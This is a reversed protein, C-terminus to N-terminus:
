SVGTPSGATWALHLGGKVCTMGLEGGV